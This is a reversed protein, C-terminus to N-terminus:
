RNRSTRLHEMIEHMIKHWKEVGKERRLTVAHWLAACRKLAYTSQLLQLLAGPHGSSCHQIQPSQVDAICHARLHFLFPGAMMYLIVMPMQQKADPSVCSTVHFRHPLKRPLRNRLQQSDMRRHHWMRLFTAKGLRPSKQRSRSPRSFNELKGSKM